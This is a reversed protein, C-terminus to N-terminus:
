LRVVLHLLVDVYHDVIYYVDARTTGVLSKYDMHLFHVDDDDTDCGHGIICFVVRCSRLEQTSVLLASM